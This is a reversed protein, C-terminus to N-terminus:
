VLITIHKKLLPHNQLNKTYESLQANEIHSLKEKLEDLIVTNNKSILLESAKM